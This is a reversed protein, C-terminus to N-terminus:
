VAGLETSLRSLVLEANEGDLWDQPYAYRKVRFELSGTDTAIQSRLALVRQALIDAGIVATHPLMLVIQREVLRTSIDTKRILQRIREALTEMLLITKSRGIQDILQPVNDLSILLLSFFQEKYRKGLEICWNLTYSFYDHTVYNMNDLIAYMDHLQSSKVSLRGQESLSLDYINFAELDEPLSTGMCSFCKAMVQPNPFIHSCSECIHNDIARDYDVGIHRLSTQCKSCRLEGSKLFDEQSAVFGCTFCHLFYKEAININSCNPCQDIYNLHADGCHPCLRIRDALKENKLLKRQNLSQAWLFLDNTDQFIKLLTYSYYRESSSDSVAKIVYGPRAYLFRLLKEDQDLVQNLKPLSELLENIKQAQEQGTNWDSIVGDILDMIISSSASRLFIPKLCLHTHLRIREIYTKLLEDPLHIVFGDYLHGNLDLEDLTRLIPVNSPMHPLIGAIPHEDIQILALNSM